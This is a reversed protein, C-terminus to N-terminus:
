NTAVRSANQDQNILCNKLGFSAVHLTIENCLMSETLANNFPMNTLDNLKLKLTNVEERESYELM